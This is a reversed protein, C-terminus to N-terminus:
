LLPQEQGQLTRQGLNPKWPCWPKPPSSSCGLLPTQLLGPCLGSRCLWPVQLFLVAAGTVHPSLSGMLDLVRCWRWEGYSHSLYWSAM